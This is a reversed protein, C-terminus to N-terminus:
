GKHPTTTTTKFRGYKDRKRKDTEVRRFFSDMWEQDRGLQEGDKVGRWYGLLIGCATALLGAAILEIDNMTAEM